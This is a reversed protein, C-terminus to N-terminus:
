QGCPLLSVAQWYMSEVVDACAALRDSRSLYVLIIVYINEGAIVLQREKREYVHSFRMIMVTELVLFGEDEKMRKRCLV